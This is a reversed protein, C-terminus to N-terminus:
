SELANGIMFVLNLSQNTRLRDVKGFNRLRLSDSGDFGVFYLHKQLARWRFALFGSKHGSRLELSPGLLLVFVDIIGKWHKEKHGRMILLIEM